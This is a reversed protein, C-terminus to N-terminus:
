SILEFNLTKQEGPQSLTVTEEKPQYGRARVLITRSRKSSELESLIYEGQSNSFTFKKSGKIRVQALVVPETAHTIKGVLNTSPLTLDAISIQSNNRHQDSVTVTVQKSVGYRRKLDPLLAMLSYEGQPLDLFYYIGDVATQTLDPRSTTLVQRAMLFDLIERAAKLKQEKSASADDLILRAQQITKPEGILTKLKAKTILSSVFAQPADIIKVQALAIAKNTQANTVKGAISVRHRIKVSQPPLSFGGYGTSNNVKEM